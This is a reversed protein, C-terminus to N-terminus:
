PDITWDQAVIQEADFAHESLDDTEHNMSWFRLGEAADFDYHIHPESARSFAKMGGSAFHAAIVQSFTMGDDPGDVNPGNQVDAIFAAFNAEPITMTEVRPGHQDGGHKKWLQRVNM